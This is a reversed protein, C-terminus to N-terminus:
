AQPPPEAGKPQGEGQYTLQELYIPDSAFYEAISTEHLTRFSFRVSDVLPSASLASEMGDQVLAIAEAEEESLDEDATLLLFDLNYPPGQTSSKSVRIESVVHSFQELVKTPTEEFVGDVPDQYAEVFEDPFAPRIYRRALWRAFRELAEGNLSWDELEVQELAEKKVHIKQLAQAVLRKDADILFWRSSNGEVLTACREPKEQKCILLEVYPEREPKALIDCDQSAVVLRERAKVAREKTEISGGDPTPVCYVFKLASSRLVAGQRFGAGYLRGGVHLEAADPSM